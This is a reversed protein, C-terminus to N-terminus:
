ETEKLDVSIEERRYGRREVPRWRDSTGVLIRNANKNEVHVVGFCYKTLNVLPSGHEQWHSLLCDEEHAIDTQTVNGVCPVTHLRDTTVVGAMMNHVVPTVVSLLLVCDVDMMM